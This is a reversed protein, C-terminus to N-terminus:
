LPVGMDSLASVLIFVPFPFGYDPGLGKRLEFGVREAMLAGDLPQNSENIQKNVNPRDVDRDGHAVYYSVNQRPPKCRSFQSVALPSRARNHTRGSACVNPCRNVLHHALRGNAPAPSKPIHELLKRVDALTRLTMVDPITLPRPLTRSWDPRERSATIPARLSVRTLM